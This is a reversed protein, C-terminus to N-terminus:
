VVRSRLRVLGPGPRVRAQCALRASTPGRLVDLLERELPGPPELLEAGELVDVHCTGCSASRCSFPIPAFHEDCIDLIDGGAPAEIVKRVGFVNASFEITPM